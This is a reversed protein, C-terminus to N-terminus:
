IRWTLHMSRTKHDHARMSAHPPWFNLGVDVEVARLKIKFKM